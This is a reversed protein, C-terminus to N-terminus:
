KLEKKWKREELVGKTNKTIIINKIKGKNIDYDINNSDCYEKVLEAKEKGINSNIEVNISKTKKDQIIREIPIHTDFDTNCHEEFDHLTVYHNTFNVDYPSEQNGNPAFINKAVDILFDILSTKTSM